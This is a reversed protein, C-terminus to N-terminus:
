IKNNVRRKKLKLFIQNPGIFNLTKNRMIDFADANILKNAM